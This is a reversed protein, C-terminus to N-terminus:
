TPISLGPDAWQSVGTPNNTGPGYFGGGYGGFNQNPDNFVNYGTGGGGGGGGSFMSNLWSGMPNAAGAGFGPSGTGGFFGGLGTTLNNLGTQNQMFASANNAIGANAATNGAQAFSGTGQAQRQLQQNQWDINFDSVAKNELGAGYPGMALGRASEGARTSDVVQGQARDHLANQPDLSTNYTQQGANWLSNIRAPDVAPPKNGFLTNLGSGIGLAPLLSGLNFGSGGGGTTGGGGSGSLTSMLAQAISSGGPISQLQQFIQQLGQPMGAGPIAGGGGAAGTIGGLDTTGLDLGADAGAMGGAEAVPGAFAGGAGALGVGAGMGSAMLLSLMEGFGPATNNTATRMTSDGGMAGPTNRFQDGVMLQNGGAQGDDWFGGQGDPVLM